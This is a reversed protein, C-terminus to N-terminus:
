RTEWSRRADGGATPDEVTWWTPSALLPAWVATSGPNGHVFVATV